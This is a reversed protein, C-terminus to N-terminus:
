WPCFSVDLQAFSLCIPRSHSSHWRWRSSSRTRVLYRTYLLLVRAHIYLSATSYIFSLSFLLLPTPYTVDLRMRLSEACSGM